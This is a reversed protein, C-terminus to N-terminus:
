EIKFEIRGGDPVDRLQHALSALFAVTASCLRASKRGVTKGPFQLVMLACPEAVMLRAGWCMLSVAMPAHAVGGFRSPAASATGLRPRERGM